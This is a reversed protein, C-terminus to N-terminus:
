VGEANPPLTDIFQLLKSRDQDLLDIFEVGVSYHKPGKDQVQLSFAVRGRCQIPAEDEKLIVELLFISERRTEEETEIRMGGLSIDKVACTELHTLASEGAGHIRIRVVSLRQERLRGATDAIFDRFGESTESAKPQSFEIGFTYVPIIEGSPSKESGNLEASAIVGNISLESGKHEFRFIYESGINLRKRCKVSAGSEGIDLIDAETNFTTKARIGMDPVFYRRHKRKELM